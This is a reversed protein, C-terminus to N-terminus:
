RELLIYIFLWEVKRALAQNLVREDQREDLQIDCTSRTENEGHRKYVLESVCMITYIVM